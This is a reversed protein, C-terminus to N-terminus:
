FNHKGGNTPCGPPGNETKPSAVILGPAWKLILSPNIEPLCTNDTDTTGTQTPPDHWPTDFSTSCSTNKRQTESPCLWRKTTSQSLGLTTAIKKNGMGSTTKKKRHCLTRTRVLGNESHFHKCVSPIKLCIHSHYESQHWSDTNLTSTFHTLMKM